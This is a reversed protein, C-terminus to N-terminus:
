PIDTCRHSLQYGPEKQVLYLLLKKHEVMVVASTTYLWLWLLNFLCGNKITIYVEAPLHGRRESSNVIRRRLRQKWRWIRVGM